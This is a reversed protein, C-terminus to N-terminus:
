LQLLAIYIIHYTHRREAELDFACESGCVCAVVCLVPVNHGGCRDSYAVDMRM